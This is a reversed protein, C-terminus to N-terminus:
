LTCRSVSVIKEAMPLGTSSNSAAGRLGNSPLHFTSENAVPGPATLAGRSPVSSVAKKPMALTPPEAPQLWYSPVYPVFPLMTRWRPELGYRYLSQMLREGGHLAQVFGLAFRANDDRPNNKLQGALMKQADAVKGEVLMAEMAPAPNSQARAGMAGGSVFAAVCLRLSISRYM